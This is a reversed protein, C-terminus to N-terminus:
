LIKKYEFNTTEYNISQQYVGYGNKKAVNLVMQKNKDKVKYGLYINRIPLLVSTDEPIGTLRWERQYAYDTKKTRIIDIIQNVSFESNSRNLLKTNVISCFAKLVIKIPDNDRTNLYKVQILEKEYKPNEKIFKCMDYEICFGEYHNAYGDWLLQSNQLETLSYVGVVNRINILKLFAEQFEPNEDIVKTIQKIGDIAKEIAETKISSDVSKIYLKFREELLNGEDYIEDINIRKFKRNPGNIFLQKLIFPMLDKLYEKQNGDIIKNCVSISCELPDDLKEVPSFYIYGTELM